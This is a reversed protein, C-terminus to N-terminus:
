RFFLHHLTTQSCHTLSFTTIPPRCSRSFSTVDAVMNVVMWTRLSNYEVALLVLFFILIEEEWCMRTYRFRPIRWKMMSIADSQLLMAVLVLIIFVDNEFSLSLSLMEAMGRMMQIIQNRWRLSELMVMPYNNNYDSSFKEKIIHLSDIEDEKSQYKGHMLFQNRKNIHVWIKTRCVVFSPFKAPINTSLMYFPVAPIRFSQHM